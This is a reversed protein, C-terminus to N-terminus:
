APGGVNGRYHHIGLTEILLGERQAYTSFKGKELPRFFFLLFHLHFLQM